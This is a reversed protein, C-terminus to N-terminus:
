CRPGDLNEVEYGVDQAAAIAWSPTGDVYLWTPTKFQIPGIGIGGNIKAAQQPTLSQLSSNRKRDM